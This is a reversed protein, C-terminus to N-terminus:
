STRVVAIGALTPVIVDRGYLAPTGFRNAVGVDVQGVSRGTAPDLAHLVGAGTDLAWIRGGGVVPSGTISEPAHWLVHLQGADDVRVARVGDTCPLYVVNGDVAAGGFSLCIDQVDVQGGIGGLHGQRLVYVPGSKGGLVAWKRGILAVGQSGLGVDDRNNVAWDSPAFSDVLHANRDLELVTNTHDYADGPFAAGNASVALLHGGATVTPGAPNWIGGGRKTPPSYFVVGDGGDLPVGVVRGKYNGCDGAQAGYPVWVRGGAIALAGRQQMDRASVGPLDVSKSWAVRGSATDLAYLVHRVSGGHEAVLYVHKGASDYVPTGTIGLPNIDGCQREEAPSPSGLNRKWVQRYLQDFAYVTDSETAVITLGGVVIPSAYVAGDLRLSQVRRLPGNAPPM